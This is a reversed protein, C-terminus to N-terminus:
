RVYVTVTDAAPNTPAISFGAIGRDGSYVVRGFAGVAGTLTYGSNETLPVTVATGPMVTLSRNEGGGDLTADLATSGPNSLHLM